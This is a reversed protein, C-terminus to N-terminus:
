VTIGWLRRVITGIIYTVVIAGFMIMLNLTIRRKVNMGTLFAVIFSVAMLAAGGAILSAVVNKAGFLVPLIPILAGLFFFAGVLIGSSLPNGGDGDAHKEGELYITKRRETEEVEKESSAAVYVGAAMSISGAVAVTLGAKLVSSADTFAAFFGNVAGLIEVLGDNLGLFVNRIRGGDIKREIIRSVADGENKLEDNLVNKLAPGLRTGRYRNWVELYNRTGFIELSELVLHIMQEGFIRCLIYLTRLKVTRRWSLRTVSLGFFHNWFDLHGQEISIMSKLLRRLDGRSIKELRRFLTLDFLEDQALAWGLSKEKQTFRRDTM